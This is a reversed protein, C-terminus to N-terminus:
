LASLTRGYAWLQCAVPVSVAPILSVSSLLLLWGCTSRSLYVCVCVSVCLHSRKGLYLKKYTHICVGPDLIPVSTDSNQM